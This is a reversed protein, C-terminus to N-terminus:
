ILVIFIQLFKTNINNNTQISISSISIFFNRKKDFMFTESSHLLQMCPVVDGNWIVFCMKEEVFPCYDFPKDPKEGTYRHMKGVAIDADFFERASADEDMPIAHSINITDVNFEDAFDNIYGLQDVNDEMVVFTIGLGIDTNERLENFKRINRCILNFRGGLRIKEYEAESFGDMSIWLRTLGGDIMKKLKDETLLTANTLVETKNSYMSVAKIMEPLDKHILPEGMGGFFVKECRNERLYDMVASFTEDSMEGIKEDLWKHRFCMKCSLNCGSAPEIYLSKIESIKNEKRLTIWEM